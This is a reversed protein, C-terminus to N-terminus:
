WQTFKDLEKQYRLKPTKSRKRESSNCRGSLEAKHVFVRAHVFAKDEESKTYIVNRHCVFKMTKYKNMILM